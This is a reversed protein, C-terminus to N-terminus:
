QLPKRMSDQAHYSQTSQLPKRTFAVECVRAKDSLDYLRYTRRCQCAAPLTALRM